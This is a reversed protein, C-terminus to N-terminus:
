GVLSKKITYTALSHYSIPQTDGDGGPEEDTTSPAPHVDSKFFELQITFTNSSQLTATITVSANYNPLVQVPNTSIGQGPSIHDPIEYSFSLEPFNAEEVVIRDGAQMGAFQLKMMLMAAKENNIAIDNIGFRQSIGVPPKDTPKYAHYAFGHETIWEDFPGTIDGTKQPDFPSDSDSDQPVAIIDYPNDAQPKSLKSTVAIPKSVTVANPEAKVLTSGLKMWKSPSTATNKFTGYLTITGFFTTSGTNKGRVYILNGISDWTVENVDPNQSYQNVLDTVQASTLPKTGVAIIDPSASQDTDTDNINGRIFFCAADQSPTTM